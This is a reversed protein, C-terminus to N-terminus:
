CLDQMELKNVVCVNLLIITGGERGRWQKFENCRLSAIIVMNVGHMHDM